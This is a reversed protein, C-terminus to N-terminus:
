SRINGSENAKNGAENSIRREERSSNDPNQELIYKELIEAASGIIEKCPRKKYYEDTRASPDPVERQVKLGLLDRCIISGNKEEFRHALEQIRAYQDKKVQGTEPGSYGYLLDAILFMGSVSGCVERLRSMGGGFGCSLRSLTDKEVDVADSFTLVLSQSCNYGQLFYDMAIEKRSKERM